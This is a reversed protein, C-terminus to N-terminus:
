LTTTKAMKNMFSRMAKTDRISNWSCSCERTDWGRNRGGICLRGAAKTPDIVVYASVAIAVAVAIGALVQLIFDGLVELVAGIKPM